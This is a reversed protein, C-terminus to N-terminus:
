AAISRPHGFGAFRRLWAAGRDDDREALADLLTPVGGVLRLFHEGKFRLDVAGINRCDFAAQGVRRHLSQRVDAMAQVHRQRLEKRRKIAGREFWGARAARICGFRGMNRAAPQALNQPTDREM